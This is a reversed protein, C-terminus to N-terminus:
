ELAGCGVCCSKAYSVADAQAASRLWLPRVQLIVDSLLSFAIARRPM